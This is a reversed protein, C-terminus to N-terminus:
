DVAVIQVGKHYLFAADSPLETVDFFLYRRGKDGIGNTIVYGMTELHAVTTRIYQSRYEEM